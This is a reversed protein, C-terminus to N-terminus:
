TPSSSFVVFVMRFNPVMRYRDSGGGGARGRGARVAFVTKKHVKSIIKIKYKKDNKSTCILLDLM